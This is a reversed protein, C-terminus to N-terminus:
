AGTLRPTEFGQGMEVDHVAGCSSIIHGLLLINGVSIFKSQVSTAFEAADIVKM